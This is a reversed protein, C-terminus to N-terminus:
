AHWERRAEAFARIRDALGRQRSTLLLSAADSAPVMRTAELILRLSESHLEGIDDNFKELASGAYPASPTSTTLNIQAAEDAGIHNGRLVLERASDPGVVQILRRLGLIVGFRLGPFRFRALPTGYRLDCAVVLDAGAGVAPGDVVCATVFPARYLTELLAQIAAFRAKASRDDLPARLDFGGCFVSGTSSLVVLRADAEATQDLACVLEEVLLRSLANGSDPADLLIRFMGRTSQEVRV